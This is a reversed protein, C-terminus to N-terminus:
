ATEVQAGGEALKEAGFQRVLEHLSYRDTTADYDLLSKSVLRALLRLPTQTVAQAAERTFSGRFISLRAFVDREPPALLQWTYNFTARMSRQRAPIGAQETTLFDLDREIERAIQNPSLTDVWSAALEIGLPIAGVLRCIQVVGPLDEPAPMYDLQVRRGSQVFLRVASAQLQDAGEEPLDLGAIQLVREGRVALPQRSTACITLHPAAAVLDYVFSAGGALHEFNDLILLLQQEHLYRKLQMALGADDRLRYDLAEAIAAPVHTPEAVPALAVFFIGDPFLPVGAEGDTQLFRRAVALALSTKGSGGPGAVTVLPIEPNGLSGRLAEREAERGIFIGPRPLNHRPAASEGVGKEGKTEPAIEGARIAKFLATTEAAPPVGLEEALVEVCIEYQALAASREGALALARMLQQHAAERWPELALQRRAMDQAALLMGRGHSLQQETLEHLANLALRHLRERERRLWDEFELSASAFGPLLDGQYIQAAEGLEGREVAKVFQDVDLVHESQRNFQLTERSVLLFPQERGADQLVKRLQYLSQRLNTRAVRDPEEPWFLAALLDRPFSRHAELALYVLLGQVNVSRFGTLRQGDLTVEFTGLFRLSLVNM